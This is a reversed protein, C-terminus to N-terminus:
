AVQLLPLWNIAAARGTSERRVIESILSVRMPPRAGGEPNTLRDAICRVMRAGIEVHPVRV